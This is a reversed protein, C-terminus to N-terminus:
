WATSAMCAKLRSSLPSSRRLRPSRARRAPARGARRARAGRSPARTRSSRARRPRRASARRGRRRSPSRCRRRSGNSTADRRQELEREAPGVAREVDVVVVNAGAAGLRDGVQDVRRRQEPADLEGAAVDAPAPELEGVGPRRVDVVAEAAEVVQVRHEGEDACAVPLAGVPEHAGQARACERGVRWPLVVRSSPRAAHRARAANPRPSSMSAIVSSALRGGCACRRPPLWACRSTRWRVIARATSRRRSVFPQDLQSGVHERLRDRDSVARAATAKMACRCGGCDRDPMRSCAVAPLSGRRCRRYVAGPGAGVADTPTADITRGAKRLLCVCTIRPPRVVVAGPARRAGSRQSAAARRTASCRSAAATCATTTASVALSRPARATRSVVSAGRALVSAAALSGRPQRHRRRQEGEDRGPDVLCRSRARRSKAVPGFAGVRARLPRAQDRRQGDAGLDEAHEIGVDVARAAAEVIRM